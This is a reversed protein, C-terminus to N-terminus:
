QKAQQVIDELDLRMSQSVYTAGSVGEINASQQALAQQLLIPAAFKSPPSKPFKVYQVDTWEGNKITVSIKLVGWPTQQSAIYNGDNYEQSIQTNKGNKNQQINGIIRGIDTHKTQNIILWFFSIFFTSIISLVWAKYKKLFQKM